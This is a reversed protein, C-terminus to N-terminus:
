GRMKDREMENMKGQRLERETEGRRISDREEQDIKV